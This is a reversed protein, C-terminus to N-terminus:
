KNTPISTTIGIYKRANELQVRKFVVTISTYRAHIAQRSITNQQQMVSVTYINTATEDIKFLM